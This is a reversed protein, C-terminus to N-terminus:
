KLFGLKCVIAPEKAQGKCIQFFCIIRVVLLIVVCIGGAIPVLLTWCLVASCIAIIAECICIKLYQRVHFGAYASDGRALLAIILGVIGLLYPLMAVVKNDSIDAAEFEGTHDTPDVYPAPAPAAQM